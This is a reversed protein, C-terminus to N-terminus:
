LGGKLFYLKKLVTNYMFIDNVRIDKQGVLCHNVVLDQTQRGGVHRHPLHCQSLYVVQNSYLGVLQHPEEEEAWVQPGHRDLHSATSKPM